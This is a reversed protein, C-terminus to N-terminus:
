YTLMGEPGKIVVRAGLSSRYEVRGVRRAEIGAWSAAQFCAEAAREPVVAELRHGMNFTKFMEKWTEGSAKQLMAFLPPVPFPNDKIYANDPGGFKGIKTQGGGSCHILGHIDAPAIRELLNGILPLYTRTPSLLAGGVTFRGDGPLADKLRYMGRYVLDGPVQPAYSETISKYHSSLSDHRGNTLGNSGIGSNPGNEWITQGTSSFGIIVDGPVMHSADIVNARRIRTSVVNDVTVTRVLDPLDATEGSVYVLDFGFQNMKDCFDKCGAILSDVVEAPILFKNRGIIQSVHMRGLAGVCAVDDVNMVISDQAIGTWVKNGFKECYALFALSSKTGAGDTHQISGYDPDDAIDPFIPCFAGPFIGKDLGATAKHVEEKGSSVGRAAYRSTDTTM